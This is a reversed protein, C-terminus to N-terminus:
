AMFVYLATVTYVGTKKVEAVTLALHGAEIGVPCSAPHAVSDTHVM